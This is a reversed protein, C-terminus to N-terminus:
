SLHPAPAPYLFRIDRDEVELHVRAGRLIDGKLIQEALTSRIKDAIVARLPRAGFTPDYGLSAILRIVDDDYTLTVGQVAAMTRALEKLHLSAIAEIDKESLPQFVIIDSFHNLLEPKFVSTLKKKLEDGIVAIPTHADLHMKVFESHANSTAILITNTFDATRGAHDTLRGDDFIQLFIKLIDPHAKEFEDLLIVSYPKQMVAETLNGALRGDPSGIFRNIDEKEQHESMDFRLMMGESGFQAEALIKSLETKGVGTPGVFFFSAIPGEKRNLGSRYERLARAVARVAYDQDVLREHIIDELRLLREAERADPRHIPISAKREAIEIIDDQTLRSAGRHTARALAERLLERASGPLPKYRFYRAALRVAEKLAAFTITIRHIRELVVGEFSLLRIAENPSIEELQIPTFAAAFDADQGILEAYEKQCTAGIIPNNMEKFLPLVIDAATMAHAGSTRLFNHINPVYLIINGARATEELIMTCRRSIEETGAGTVLMGLELAVLRMDFLRAPVRDRVIQLALHAILAGKGIGPEGILLVRPKEDDTLARLLIEFEKDHGALFGIKGGCALDTLDLSFRDLTPTPRATWARNMIRHRDASKAFHALLAPPRAFQPLSARFRGFVFANELDDPEIGYLRFIRERMGDPTAALASFINRPEIFAEGAARAILCATKLIDDCLVKTNEPPAKKAEESLTDIKEKMEKQPVELRGLGEAVSPDDLLLAFLSLPFPSQKVAARDLAKTLLARSAPSLFAAIRVPKESPLIRQLSQRAHRAHILMDALFLLLLIGLARLWDIDAILLTATAAVLMSVALYKILRYLARSAVGMAFLPDNADLRDKDLPFAQM